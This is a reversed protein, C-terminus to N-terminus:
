KLAEVMMGTGLVGLVVPSFPRLGMARAEKTIFDKSCRTGAVEFWDCVREQVGQLKGASGVPKHLSSEPRGGGMRDRGESLFRADCSSSKGVLGPVRVSELHPPHSWYYIYFIFKINYKRNYTIQEAGRYWFLNWKALLDSESQSGWFSSEQQM